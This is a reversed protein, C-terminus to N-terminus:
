KGYLVASHLVGLPIKIGLDRMRAINFALTGKPPVDIPIEGPPIGGLIKAVKKGAYFGQYYGTLVIGGALGMKIYRSFFSVEPIKSHAITWAIIKDSPVDQGNAGKLGECNYVVLLDVEGQDSLIIKKWGSFSYAFKFFAIPVKREKAITMFNSVMTHSTESSDSILGIRMAPKGMLASFLRIAQLFYHRELVGTVNMGPRKRDYKVFGYVEPERNVGLFVMPLSTGLFHTLVYHAANDDFGVLVDPHEDKILQIAEKSVKSLWADDQHRKTDMYFSRFKCNYGKLADKLGREANVHWFLGPHYSFVLFIKKESALACKGGVFLGSTLFLILAFIWRKM